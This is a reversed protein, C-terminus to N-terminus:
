FIKSIRIGSVAAVGKVRSFDINLTGDNVTVEFTKTVARYLGGAAAGVDFNDLVLNGEIIVDFVYATGCIRSFLLEVIYDGDPVDFQYSFNSYAYRISQYLTDDETLDIPKSRRYSRGGIYGGDGAEYAKDAEWLDGNIDTYSTGGANLRYLVVNGSSDESTIVVIDPQSDEIGDNVILQIVYDGAMDAIFTPTPSTEDDFVARSGAPVSLFSWLYTLEDGDPDYSRTGDLAVTTGKEVTQAEGAEAVPPNNCGSPTASAYAPESYNLYRDYAFAAYYYTNGNQLGSHLFTDQSGPTIDTINCVLTGDNYNTPYSDTKYLIKIGALDSDSPNIWSLEVQGDGPTATLSSVPSLAPATCSAENSYSSERGDAVSTVVYYYTVGPTTNEDTYTTTTVLSSNIKVYGSGSTTSRYVNYGDVGEVADWTLIISSGPTAKLNSPPSPATIGQSLDAYWSNPLTIQYTEIGGGDVHVGWNSGWVVKTGKRNITAFAEEPYWGTYNSFTHGIRWIRPNEKLELMFLDNDAWSGNGGYTSVLVWGPTDYCHGSIHMGTGSGPYHMLDTYKKTELNIMRIYDKTRDLFVFVENGEIDYAFDSHGLPGVRYSTTFTKDYIYFGQKQPPDNWNYYGVIVWKGSPSMGVWKHPDPNNLQGVIQNKVKDYVIIATISHTRADRVDFVWYRGDKSPEGKSRTWINDANPFENKFDHVVTVEDNTINYQFLKTNARYYFINPNEPDWRPEIELVGREPLIKWIEKILQFTNADYLYYRATNEALLLYSGDCNFPDIQSYENLMLEGKYGDINKDTIRTYTTHFDPHVFSEGKAPKPINPVPYPNTNMVYEFAISSSIFFFLLFLLTFFFIMKSNVNKEMSSINKNRM